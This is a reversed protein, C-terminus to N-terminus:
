GQRVPEKVVRELKKEYQHTVHRTTLGFLVINERTQVLICICSHCSASILLQLLTLLLHLLVTSSFMAYDLNFAKCINESYHSVHEDSRLSVIHSFCHILYFGRTQTCSLEVLLKLSCAEGKIQSRSHFSYVASSCLTAPLCRYAPM